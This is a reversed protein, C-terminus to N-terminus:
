SLLAKCELGEARFRELLEMQQKEDRCTVLVLFQAPGFDVVQDPKAEEATEATAQWVVELEPCPAPTLERLREHLQEQMEALAAPGSDRQPMPVGAAAGPPTAIAQPDLLSNM